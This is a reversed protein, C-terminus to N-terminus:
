TGYFVATIVCVFFSPFGDLAYLVLARISVSSVACLLVGFCLWLMFCVFCLVCCVHFVVFCKNEVPRGRLPAVTLCRIAVLPQEFLGEIM